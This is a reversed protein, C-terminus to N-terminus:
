VAGASGTSRLGEDAARDALIPLDFFFTTGGSGCTFDIAGSHSEIISKTISLGLGTGGPRDAGKTYIQYFEGFMKDRLESPIGPGSDRVSVRATIEALLIQVDVGGGTPSYKAANSLLNNMVQILRNRDGLVVVGDEQTHLRLTVNFQDAYGRNAEVAAAVVDTLDLPEFEYVLQGALIKEFDLIDNVLGVLSGASENAIQILTAADDSIEGATGSAILSLSGKISTLPTRLEHSMNALFRSKMKTAEEAEDKAQRLEAEAQKRRTIDYYWALRLRGGGFEIPMFSASVWFETGDERRLHIEEDRLYDNEKLRKSIRPADDSDVYYGSPEITPIDDASIAFMEFFPENAYVVNRDTVNILCVAIPSHDLLSVFREESERLAENALVQATIDTHVSVNGGSPLSRDRIQLWRGDAMKIEHTADTEHGFSNRRKWFQEDHDLVSGRKRDLEDLAEYSVGIKAEADTYNWFAKFKDNCLVLRGDGDYWVFGEALHEIADALQRRAEAAENQAQQLKNEAQKRETIDSAVSGVSFVNGRRDRIPFKTLLTIRQVRDAFPEKFEQTIPEGLEIVRRDLEAVEDAVSDPYLDDSTRGEIPKNDGTFWDLFVPNVHTYHGARDKLAIAVPIQEVVAKFTEQSTRLEHQAAKQETIDRAVAVGGEYPTPGVQVEIIKGSPLHAEYRLSARERFLKRTQELLTDLNIEGLDGREVQYRLMEGVFKGKVVLGEPYEFLEVYRENFLLVELNKDLMLMGGPMHDLAIRLEVERAELKATVDRSTRGFLAKLM